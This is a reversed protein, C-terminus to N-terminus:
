AHIENKERRTHHPNVLRMWLKPYQCYSEQLSRGQFQLGDSRRLETSAEKVNAQGEGLAKGNEFIQVTITM